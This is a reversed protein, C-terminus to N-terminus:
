YINVEEQLKIKFKKYVAIKIKESLAKIDKGNGGGYNVLILAHEKYVGVNKYKYGKFGCYEVLFGAPIKIKSGEKYFPLNTFKISLQKFQKQSVFPNKFFSGANPLIKYNPLKSNRIKIVKNRVSQITPKKNEFEKALPLYTLNFKPKKSLEFFVHTIIAKNKLENKFASDRYSFKCNKNLISEYKKTELNFYEVKYTTDKVEVGYAGINQIPSAGVTGPILSLNEIGYYNNKVCYKVFNDWNEGSGVKLKVFSKTEQRKEIGKIENKIVFGEFNRTFLIDSGGGLVTHKKCTKFELSEIVGPIENKGKLKVFYKAKVDISFTNYKKLSINKQIKM